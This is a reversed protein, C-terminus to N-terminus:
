FDFGSLQGGVLFSLESIILRDIKRVDGDGGVRFILDVLIGV